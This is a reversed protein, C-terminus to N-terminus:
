RSKWGNYDIDTFSDMEEVLKQFTQALVRLNSASGTFFPTDSGKEYLTIVCFGEEDPEVIATYEWGCSFIQKEFSYTPKVTPKKM